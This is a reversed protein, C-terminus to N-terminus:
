KNLIKYFEFQMDKMQQQKQAIQQFHVRTVKQDGQNVTESVIGYKESM